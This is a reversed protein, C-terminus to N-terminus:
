QETYEVSVSVSTSDFSASNNKNIALAIRDGKEVDIELTGNFVEGTALYVYGGEADLLHEGNKLIAYKIGDGQDSIISL